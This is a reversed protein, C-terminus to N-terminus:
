DNRKSRWALFAPDVKITVEFQDFPEKMFVGGLQYVMLAERLIDFFQDERALFEKRRSRDLIGYREINWTAKAWTRDPNKAIDSVYQVFEILDGNWYFNWTQYGQREEREAAVNRLYMNRDRDITWSRARTRSMYSQDISELGYKEADEASIRENVFGM